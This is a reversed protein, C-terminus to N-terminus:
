FNWKATPRYLVFTDDPKKQERDLMGPSWPQVTVREEVLPDTPITSRWWSPVPTSILNPFRVTSYGKELRQAVTANFENEAALYDNWLIPTKEQVTNGIRGWGVCTQWVDPQVKILGVFYHKQHNKSLDIHTLYIRLNPQNM